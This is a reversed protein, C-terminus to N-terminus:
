AAADKDRAQVKSDENGEIITASVTAAGERLAIAAQYEPSNWFARIADASPWESLVIPSTLGAGELVDGPRGASLYRAGYKPAIGRAAAAYALFRERDRIELQVFLYASM